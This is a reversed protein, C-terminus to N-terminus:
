NHNMKKKRGLNFVPTMIGITKMMESQNYFIKLKRNKFLKFDIGFYPESHMESSHMGMHNNKGMENMIGAAVNFRGLNYKVNYMIEYDDDIDFPTIMVGAGLAVKPLIMYNVGVGLKSIDNEIDMAGSVGVHVQSYISLSFFTFLLIFFNKM